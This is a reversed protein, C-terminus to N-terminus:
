IQTCGVGVGANLDQVVVGLLGLLQATAHDIASSVSQCGCNGGTPPKPQTCGLTVLGSVDHGSCYVDVSDAASATVPFAAATGSLVLTAALTALTRRLRDM